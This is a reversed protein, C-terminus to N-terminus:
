SYKLIFNTLALLSNTLIMHCFHHNITL